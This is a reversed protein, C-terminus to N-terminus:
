MIYFMLSRSISVTLYPIELLDKEELNLFGQPLPTQLFILALSSPPFWFVLSELDVYDL